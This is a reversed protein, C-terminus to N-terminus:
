RKSVTNLDITLDLTSPLEMGNVDLTMNGTIKTNSVREVIMGTARDFLYHGSSGGVQLESRTVKAPGVQNPDQAYKVGNVFISVKDLTKGDKEVTGVYEYFTDLTLTQGAGIDQIEIRQWRDGKNVSKEPLAGREQATELQLKERSLAAKVHEAAEPTANKIIQDVGEVATVEGKPNYTLTYSAGSLAKFTDIAEQLQPIGAKAENPKASDFDVEFGPGVIRVLMKDTKNTVKQSGDGAPKAAALVSVIHTDVNTVVDMGAIKLSQALKMQATTTTKGELPKPVLQTQAQAAGAIFLLAAALTCTALKM